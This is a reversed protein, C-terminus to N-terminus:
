AWIHFGIKPREHPVTKRVTVTYRRPTKGHDVNTRRGQQVQVVKAVKEACASLELFGYNRICAHYRGMLDEERHFLSAMPCLDEDPSWTCVQTDNLSVKAGATISSYVNELEDVGDKILPGPVNAHEGHGLYRSQGIPNYSIGLTVRVFTHALLAVMFLPAM